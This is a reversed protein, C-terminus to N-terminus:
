LGRNVDCKVQRVKYGAAVFFMLLRDNGTMTSKNASIM